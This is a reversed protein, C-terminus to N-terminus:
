VEKLDAVEYPNCNAHCWPDIHGKFHLKDIVINIAALKAAAESLSARVPNRCYKRLHCGDDYCIIDTIYLYAFVYSHFLMSIDETNTANTHLLMHLCGYVQNLSESSFLEDVMTIIGCPWIGALLGTYWSKFIYTDQAFIM